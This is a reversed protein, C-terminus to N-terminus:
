DLVVFPVTELGACQWGPLAVCDSSVYRSAMSGRSSVNSTALCTILLLELCAGSSEHDWEKGHQETVAEICDLQIQLILGREAGSVAQRIKRLNVLLSYSDCLRASTPRIGSVQVLCPAFHCFWM